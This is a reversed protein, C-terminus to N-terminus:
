QIGERRGMACDPATCCEAHVDEGDARTHREDWHAEDAFPLGCEACRQIVWMPRLDNM